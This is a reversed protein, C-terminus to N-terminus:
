KLFNFPMRFTIDTDPADDTAGIGIALNFPQGNGLNLSYGILFKGITVDSGAIKPASALEIRTEDYLDLSYSLSFSSRENLSFGMGVNFRVADGPDVDGFPIPQGPEGTSGRGGKDDELTWLYGLNGFFVVPDSPYLFTVSPNVSWFGSGTALERPNDPEGALSAETALEFPDTGTDSKVRLNGTFFPLSPNNRPFQYRVGGVDPSVRPLEPRRAEAAEKEAKQEAGVQAPAGSTDQGGRYSDLDSAETLLRELERRQSEVASVKEMLLRYQEDIEAM